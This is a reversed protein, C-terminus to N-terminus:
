EREQGAQGRRIAQRAAASCRESCYARDKRSGAPLFAGCRKCCRELDARPTWGLAQLMRRATEDATQRIIEKTEEDM